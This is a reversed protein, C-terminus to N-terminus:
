QNDGKLTSIWCLVEELVSTDLQYIIQKGHREESILGAQKLIALHHSITAGTLDFAASINGAPMSKERLMSLIERRTPDALAKCIDQFGM